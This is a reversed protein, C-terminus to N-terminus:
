RAKLALFVRIGSLGLLILGIVTLAIEGATIEYKVLYPQGNSALTALLWPAPTPTLTAPSTATPTPTSDFSYGAAAYHARVRDIALAHNYLAVEDMLGQYWYGSQFDGLEITPTTVLMPGNNSTGQSNGDVYLTGTDTGSDYSYVIHHWSDLPFPGSVISGTNRYEIKYSGDNVFEFVFYEDNNWGTFIMIPVDWGNAVPEAKLWMEIAFSGTLALTPLSVYASSGNFDVATDGDGVLAGLAGLTLNHYTGTHSNGSSDVANAGSSDGLRYYSLPTDSLVADSYTSAHAIPAIFLILSLTACLAWLINRRMSLGKSGYHAMVAGYYHHNDPQRVTDSLGGV